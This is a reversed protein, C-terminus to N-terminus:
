CQLSKRSSKKQHSAPFLYDPRHKHTCRDTQGLMKSEPVRFAPRIPFPSCENSAGTRHFSSPLPKPGIPQVHCTGRTIACVMAFFTTALPAPWVLPRIRSLSLTPQYGGHTPEIRKPLSRDCGKQEHPLCTFLSKMIETKACLRLTQIPRSPCREVPVTPPLIAKEITFPDHTRTGVFGSLYFVVIKVCLM